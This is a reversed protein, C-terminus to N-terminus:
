DAAFAALMQRNQHKNGPVGKPPTSLELDLRIRGDEDQNRYMSVYAADLWDALKTSRADVGSLLLSGNIYTWVGVTKRVCNVVWWWDRGGARAVAVRAANLWRRRADPDRVHSWMADVDEDALAGPLVGSLTEPDIAIAGLWQYATAPALTWETDFCVVTVTDPRVSAFLDAAAM